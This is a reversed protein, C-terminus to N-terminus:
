ISRDPEKNEKLGFTM